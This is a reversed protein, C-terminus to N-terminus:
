NALIIEVGLTKIQEIMELPVAPDTVIRDASKL